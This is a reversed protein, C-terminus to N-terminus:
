SQKNNVGGKNLRLDFFVGFRRTVPRQTPFEGPGTFEGCLHGTIRFISGNSSTMTIPYAAGHHWKATLSVRAGCWYCGHWFERFDCYPLSARQPKVHTTRVARHEASGCQPGWIRHTLDEPRPGQYGASPSSERAAAGSSHGTIQNISVKMYLM